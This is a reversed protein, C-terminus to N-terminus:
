VVFNKIDCEEKKYKNKLKGLSYMVSPLKRIQKFVILENLKDATENLDQQYELIRQYEKEHELNKTLKLKTEIEAQQEFYENFFTEISINAQQLNLKKLKDKIDKISKIKNLM